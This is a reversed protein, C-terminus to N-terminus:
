LCCKPPLKVVSLKINLWLHSQLFKDIWPKENSYTYVYCTKSIFIVTDNCCNATVIIKWAFPKNEQTIKLYFLSCIILRSSMIQQDIIIPLAFHGNRIQTDFISQLNTEKQKWHSESTKNENFYGWGRGGEGGVWVLMQTLKVLSESKEPKVFPWMVSHWYM